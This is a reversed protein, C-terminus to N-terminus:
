FLLLVYSIERHEISFCPGCWSKSGGKGFKYEILLFPLYESIGILFVIM